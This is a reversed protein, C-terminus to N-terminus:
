SHALIKKATTYGLTVAEEIKEVSLVGIHQIAPRVLLVKKETNKLMHDEQQQLMINLSRNIIDRNLSLRNRPITIGLVSDTYDIPTSTDKIVSVAITQGYRAVELPLNATLCGDVYEIGDIEYPSFLWPLSISARLANVVLWKKFVMTKGNILTTACARFPITTKEITKESFLTSMFSRIKEGYVLGTTIDIDLLKIFSTHQFIDQIEQAKMGVAACAGICAGMSTGVIEAPKLSHEELFRLVGIHAYGRAGGGWLVLSFPATQIEDRIKKM